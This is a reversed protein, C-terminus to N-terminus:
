RQYERVLENGYETLTHQGRRVQRFVGKFKESIPPAGGPHNSRMAQFIPSGSRDWAEADIGAQIRIEQRSFATKGQDHVLVAVARMIDDTFTM